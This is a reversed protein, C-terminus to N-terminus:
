LLSADLNFIYAMKNIANDLNTTNVKYLNISNGTNFYNKLLDLDADSISKNNNYRFADIFGIAESLNHLYTAPAAINAKAGKVYSIFRAACVKEWSKLIIAKQADRTADDQNSIAARGAIWANMITSNLTTSGGLAKSVTNCYSGWNRLGTQNTPFDVPVGFYGFAEDWAHEQATAGNVNNQNDYSNITNLIRTAEAYFLAGMIGKELVEKYEIGASDVLIYRTGSILKGAYGSSASTETPKVAANNSAIIADNFSLELRSRFGFANSTKDKLQIGSNNLESDGFMNNINEYMNMLKEANLIPADTNSHTTRIYATMEALMSLRISSTSLNANTFNYTQPISYKPKDEKDKCSSFVLLGCISLLLISNRMM